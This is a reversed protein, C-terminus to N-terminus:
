CAARPDWEIVAAFEVVADWVGTLLAETVFSTGDQDWRGATVVWLLRWDVLVAAM